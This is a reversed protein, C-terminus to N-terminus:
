RLVFYEWRGWPIVSQDEVLALWHARKLNNLPGSSQCLLRKLWLARGKFQAGFRSPDGGPLLVPLSEHALQLGAGYLRAFWHFVDRENRHAGSAQADGRERHDAAAAIGM